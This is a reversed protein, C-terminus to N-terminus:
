KIMEKLTQINDKELNIFGCCEMNQINHVLPDYIVICRNHMYHPVYIFDKYDVLIYSEYFSNRIYSTSFIPINHSIPTTCKDTYIVPRMLMNNLYLTEYLKYTPSLIDAFILSFYAIDFM